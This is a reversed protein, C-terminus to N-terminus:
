EDVVIFDSKDTGMLRVLAAFQRLWPLVIERDAEYPLKQFVEESQAEETVRLLFGADEKLAEKQWPMENLDFGATGPAIDNIDKRDKLFSILEEQHETKEFIDAAIILLDLFCDTGQNSMVIWESNPATENLRIICSM